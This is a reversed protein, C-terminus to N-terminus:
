SAAQCLSLSASAQYFPRPLVAPYREDNVAGPPAAGRGRKGNRGGEHRGWSQVNEGSYSGCTPAPGWIRSPEGEGTKGSAQRWKTICVRAAHLRLSGAGYAGGCGAAAAGARGGNWRRWNGARWSSGLGGLPRLPAPAPPPLGPRCAPRRGPGPAPARGPAPPPQLGERGRRPTTGRAQAAAAARPPGSASSSCRPASGRDAPTLRDM